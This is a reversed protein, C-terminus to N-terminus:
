YISTQRTIPYKGLAQSISIYLSALTMLYDEPATDLGSIYHEPQTTDRRYGIASFTIYSQSVNLSAAVVNVLGPPRTTHNASLSNVWAYSRSTGREIRPEPRYIYIKERKM